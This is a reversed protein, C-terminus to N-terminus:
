KDSEWVKKNTDAAKGTSDVGYVVVIDNTVNFMTNYAASGDGQAVKPTASLYKDTVLKDIATKSEDATATAGAPVAPYAGKETYYRDVADKIAKGTAVDAKTKSNDIIGSFKPIAVAALVGIIVVVVMLEVLTFGREEKRMRRLAQAFKMM